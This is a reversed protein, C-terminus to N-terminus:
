GYFRMETLAASYTPGSATAQKPLETLWILWYRYRGPM